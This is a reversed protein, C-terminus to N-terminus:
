LFFKGYDLGDQHVAMAGPSGPDKSRDIEFDNQRKELDRKELSSVVDRIALEENVVPGPIGRKRYRRTVANAHQVARVQPHLGDNQYHTLLKVKPEVLQHISWHVYQPLSERSM